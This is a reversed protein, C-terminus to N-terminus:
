EKRKEVDETENVEKGEPEPGCAPSREDFVGKLSNSDSNFFDVNEFATMQEMHDGSDFVLEGTPTFISFSRGGFSYFKTYFGNEYGDFKSVRLRGLHEDERLTAFNPFATPSVM